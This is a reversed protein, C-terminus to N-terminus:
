KRGVIRLQISIADHVLHMGLHKFFKGSGYLLGWRTRDLDFHAEAAMGDEITSLTAPFALTEIRGRLLLEGRLHCNIAGPTTGPLAESQEITFRTEPHRGAFLFDDSLLHKLLMEALSSDELDTNTLSSIDIAFDGGVRGKDLRMIGENLRLTGTHKGNANRGTWEIISEALDVKYTGDAPLPHHDQPETGYGEVPSNATKWAQFGGHLAYVRRFGQRLLKKAGSDADRTEEAEGYVVVVDEPSIGITQVQELFTVEYVCANKAGPLHRQEFVGAPLVDLLHFNRGEDMWASLEQPSIRTYNTDM